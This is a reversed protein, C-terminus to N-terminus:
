RACKCFVDEFIYNHLIWLPRTFFTDLQINIGITFRSQCQERHHFTITHPRTIIHIWACMPIQMTYAPLVQIANGPHMNIYKGECMCCLPSSIGFFTGKWLLTTLGVHLERIRHRVYFNGHPKPKYRDEEQARFTLETNWTPNQPWPLRRVFAHSSPKRHHAPWHAAPAWRWHQAPCPAAQSRGLYLWSTCTTCPGPLAELHQRQGGEAQSKACCKVKMAEALNISTTIGPFEARFVSVPEVSFVLLRALFFYYSEKWKVALSSLHLLNIPTGLTMNSFQLLALRQIWISQMRAWHWLWIKKRITNLLFVTGPSHFLDSFYAAPTRILFPWKDQKM